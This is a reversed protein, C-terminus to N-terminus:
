CIIHKSKIEVDKNMKHCNKHGLETFKDLSKAKISTGAHQLGRIILLYPSLKLDRGKTNEGDPKHKVTHRM